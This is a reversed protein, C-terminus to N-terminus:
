VRFSALGKLLGEAEESLRVADTDVTQMLANLEETSANIEETAAVSNQSTKELDKIKETIKDVEDVTQSVAEIIRSVREGTKAIDADLDTFAKVVEEIGRDNAENNGTVIQISDNCAAFEQLLTQIIKKIEVLQASTNESLGKINEAVVAFGRGSEGARAAEISANLSLLNTESAINEISELIGSMKQIIQNTDAIKEAIDTVSQNMVNSNHRVQQLQKRMNGSNDDLRKSGEEIENVASQIKETNGSVITISTSVEGVAQVQASCGETVEEVAKAIEESAASVTGVTEKLEGSMKEVSSGVTVSEKITDIFKHQLEQMLYRIEEVENQYSVNKEGVVKESIFQKMEDMPQLYKKIRRNLIVISVAFLLCGSVVSILISRRYEGQRNQKEEAVGIKWGTAAINAVGLYKETGDYDKYSVTNENIAIGLADSLITSSTDTPLFAENQHAIVTDDASVLFSSIADEKAIEAIIENITDLSFDALVMSQVGNLMLPEAISIVMGGTAADQYPETFILGNEAIAQKWWSRETVIIELAVHHASYAYESNEYCVYFEMADPSEELYKELYDMIADHDSPQEYELNMKISHVTAAQEELWRDIKEANTLAAQKMQAAAAERQTNSLITSSIGQTALLVVFISVTVILNIKNRIKGMWKM